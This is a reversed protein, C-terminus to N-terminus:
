VAPTQASQTVAMCAGVRHCGSFDLLKSQGNLRARGGQGIKSREDSTEGLALLGRQSDRSLARMRAVSGHYRSSEPRKRNGDGRRTPRSALM